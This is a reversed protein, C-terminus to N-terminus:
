SRRSFTITATVSGTSGGFTTCAARLYRNVTTGAAVSVREATLTSATTNTFTLLDAWTSNDASHQVKFTCAGNRSNATVHIYGTGGNTTAAANDVATGNATASYVTAPALVVGRDIGGTAQVEASLSVVDAVPASVEFTTLRSNCGYSPGGLTLGGPVVSVVSATDSGLVTTIVPEVADTAADFMGSLSMTGDVLGMIYTKANNGFATTEATEASESVSAENLFGSLNYGGFLVATSKGHLYAM